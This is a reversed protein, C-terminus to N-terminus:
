DHLLACEKSLFMNYGTPTFLIVICVPIKNDDLEVFIGYDPDEEVM